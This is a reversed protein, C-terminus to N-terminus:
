HSYKLYTCIYFIQGSKMDQDLGSDDTVQIMANVLSCM